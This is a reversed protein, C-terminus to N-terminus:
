REATEVSVMAEPKLKGRKVLEVEVEHVQDWLCRGGVAQREAERNGLDGVLEAVAWGISSSCILCSWRDAGPPEPRDVPTPTPVPPTYLALIPKLREVVGPPNLRRLEAIAYEAALQALDNREPAPLGRAAAQLMAAENAAGHEVLRLLADAPTPAHRAHALLVKARTVQGPAFDWNKWSAEIHQLLPCPEEDLARIAAAESSLYGFPQASLGGRTGIAERYLACRDSLSLAQIDAQKAFYEAEHLAKARYEERVMGVRKRAAEVYDVWRLAGSQCGRDVLGGWALGQLATRSSLLTELV